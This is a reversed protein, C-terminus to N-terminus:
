SLSVFGRIAQTIVGDEAIKLITGNSIDWVANNNCVNLHKNFDFQMIEKPYGSYNQVLDELTLQVFTKTLELTNYRV